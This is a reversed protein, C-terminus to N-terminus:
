EKVIRQSMGGVRVVYTGAPLAGADFTATGAVVFRAVTRGLVDLVECQLPATEAGPASITFIDASPNPYIHLSSVQSARNIVGVTAFPIILCTDRYNHALDYATFCISGEWPQAVLHLFINTYVGPFTIVPRVSDIGVNVLHTISVSDIGRDWPRDEIVSVVFTSDIKGTLWRPPTTDPITCYMVTDLTVSSDNGVIRLVIQGDLMSDLVHVAIPLINFAHPPAWIIQAMNTASLTAAGAFGLPPTNTDTALIYTTRANCLSGDFSGTRSQVTIVPKGRAPATDVCDVTVSCNSDCTWSTNLLGSATVAFALGFDGPVGKCGTDAVTSDTWTYSAVGGAAITSPVSKTPDGVIRLPGAVSQTVSVNTIPGAQTNIVIEDVNFPNPSYSKNTRDYILHSPHVGIALISSYCICFEQTGYSTRFIETVSDAGNSGKVSVTPWQMLLAADLSTFSSTGAPSGFTYTSLAAGDGFVMGSCPTLGMPAPAYADTTYGAGITGLYLYSPDNELGMYFTPPSSAYIKWNKNGEYGYQELMYADDNAGACVDLLYQSSVTLASGTHNVIKVKVVIQGSNRFAVPYVDQVIDFAGGQERWTKEITDQIKKISGTNLFVDPTHTFSAGGLTNTVRTPMAGADNNTYYLGDILLTLYSFNEFSLPKAGDSIRAKGNVVQTFTVHGAVGDVLVGVFQNQTVYQQAHSTSALMVMFAFVMAAFLGFRKVM